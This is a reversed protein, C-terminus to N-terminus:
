SWPRLTETDAVMDIELCSVLAHRHVTAADTEIDVREYAGERLLWVEPSAVVEALATLVPRTEYASVLRTRRRMTSRVVRRHVADGVGISASGGADGVGAAGEATAAVGVRTKAAEITEAREIPFTYHEVSGANSRWALRRAGAIAPIVTYTVVGCAGADVTLTTARAFDATDVRFLQLGGAAARYTEAITAEATRATVTVTCPEPSFLTLEDAEGTCILRVRPMTTLLTPGTLPSTCPLFLREECVVVASPLDGEVASSQATRAIVPTNRAVDAPIAEAQAEVRVNVTRAEAAYFGTGGAVPAFRVLRRLAPAADFAVAEAGAFRKAGLLTRTRADIVRLDITCPTETRVGYRLAGGLPAYLPPIHTFTM